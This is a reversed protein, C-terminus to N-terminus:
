ISLKQRQLASPVSSHSEDIREPHLCCTADHENSSGFKSQSRVSLELHDILMQM